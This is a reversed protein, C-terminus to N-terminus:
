SDLVRGLYNKSSQENKELIKLEKIKNFYQQSHEIGPSCFILDPNDFWYNSAFENEHTQGTNGNSLILYRDCKFDITIIFSPNDVLLCYLTVM